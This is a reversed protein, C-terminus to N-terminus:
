GGAVELRREGRAFIGLTIAILVPLWALQGLLLITGSGGSLIRGPAYSMTWFPLAQAVHQLWAPLMELPILMGGVVFVFKQYLFWAAKADNAWFAMAAFAHQAALNCALAVVGSVITLSVSGDPPGVQLWGFVGGVVIACAFRTLVDGMAAAMRLGAVSVPRLMESTVAGSAIDSGVVEIMRPDVAIVCAEAAILYWLVSDYDYGAINGGSAGTAAKWLASLVGLIVLYFALRITLPGRAAFTRRASSWAAITYARM